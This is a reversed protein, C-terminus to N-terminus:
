CVTVCGFRLRVAESEDLQVVYRENEIDRIRGIRGNLAPKSQVGDITVTCEKPLILNEPKISLQTLDGDLAVVWRDDLGLRMATGTRGNLGHRALGSITIRAGASLAM